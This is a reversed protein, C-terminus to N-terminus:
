VTSEPRRPAPTDHESERRAPSRDGSRELGERPTGEARQDPLFAAKETDFYYGEPVNLSRAASQLAARLATAAERKQTALEILYMKLAPPVPIATKPPMYDQREQECDFCLDCDDPTLRAGCFFCDRDNM